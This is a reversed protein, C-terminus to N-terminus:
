KKLNNWNLVLTNDRSLLSISKIEQDSDIMTIM